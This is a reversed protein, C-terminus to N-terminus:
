LNGLELLNVGRLAGQVVHDPLLITGPDVPGFPDESVKITLETVPHNGHVGVPTM